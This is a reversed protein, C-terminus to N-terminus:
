RLDTSITQEVRIVEIGAQEIAKLVHENAEWVDTILTNIEHLRAGLCLAPRGIKSHDALLVVKEASEIMARETGVVLENTNFVGKETIGGVSLFAWHAHYESVSAETRPGLLLGSQPYLIGGTVYIEVQRHDPHRNEFESVFRVSNTVIRLPIDPIFEALLLTTTGGDIIVVDGPRLLAAAKAALTRKVSSHQIERLQIPVMESPGAQVLTVGGRVRRVLRDEAMKDFDRRITAPSAGSLDIAMEVTIVQKESLVALISQIRETQIM